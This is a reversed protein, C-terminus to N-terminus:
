CEPDTGIKEAGPNTKLSQVGAPSAQTNGNELRDLEAQASQLEATIAARFAPVSDAAPGETLGKGLVQAFALLDPLRDANRGDSTIQLLLQARAIRLRLGALHYQREAPTM